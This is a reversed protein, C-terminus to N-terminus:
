PGEEADIAGIFLVAGTGLYGSERIEALAERRGVAM